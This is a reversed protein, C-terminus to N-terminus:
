KAQLIQELFKASDKNSLFFYGTSNDFIFTKGDKIGFSLGAKALELISQQSLTTKNFFDVAQKKTQFDAQSLGYQSYAGKLVDFSTVAVQSNEFPNKGVYQYSIGKKNAPSLSVNSNSIKGTLPNISIKSVVGTFSANGLIDGGGRIEGKGNKNIPFNGQLWNGGAGDSVTRGGLGGGGVVVQANVVSITLFVALGTFIKLM